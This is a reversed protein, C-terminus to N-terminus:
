YNSNGTVTTIIIPVVENEIAFVPSRMPDGYQLTVEPSVVVVSLGESYVDFHWDVGVGGNNDWNGQLDTFVFDIITADNPAIYDYKRLGSATKEMTYDTTNNWGDFGLHLFVPNTGIPLTGRGELNYYITVQDGQVPHEPEWYVDQAFTIGCMTIFLIIAGIHKRNKLM